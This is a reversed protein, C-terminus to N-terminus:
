GRLALSVLLCGERTRAEHPGPALYLYHRATHREGDVELDGELVLIGEPARHVAQWSTSVGPQIRVWRPARETGPPQAVAVGAVVEAWAAEPPLERAEALQELKRRLVLFQEVESLLDELQFPKALVSDPEYPRLARAVEEAEAASVITVPQQRKRAAELIDRGGCDAGAIRLDTLVLSFRETALAKLAEAVSGAERVEALEGILEAMGERLSAEDEVLLVKM